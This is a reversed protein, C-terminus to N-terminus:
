LKIDCKRRTVDGLSLVPLLPLITLGRLNCPVLQPYKHGASVGSPCGTPKTLFKANTEFIVVFLLLILTRLKILLIFVNCLEFLIILITSILGAFM